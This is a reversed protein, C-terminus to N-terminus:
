ISAESMSLVQVVDLFARLSNVFIDISEMPLDSCDLADNLRNLDDVVGIWRINSNGACVAQLAKPLADIVIDLM